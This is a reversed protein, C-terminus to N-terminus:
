QESPKSMEDIKRQLLWAIDVTQGMENKKLGLAAAFVNVISMQASLIENTRRLQLIEIRANNLLSELEKM